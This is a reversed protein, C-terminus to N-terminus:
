SRTPNVFPVVGRFHKENGTAVTLDAAMAIAAIIMDQASRPKGATKGAAMLTAWALSAEVDFALIRGAFVALPGDDGDFWDELMRRKKGAPLELIGRRVEAITVTSIFLNTDEQEALWSVLPESPVPKTADSIINTDLLYRTV